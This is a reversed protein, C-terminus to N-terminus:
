KIADTEYIFKVDTKTNSAAGSYNSDERSLESLNRIREFLPKLDDKYTDAIKNIGQKKFDSMGNNLQISGESLRGVGDVLQTTGDQLKFLGNLLNASGSRLTQAGGYLQGVSSVLTGTGAKLQGSGDELKTLGDSLSKAGNSLQTIGNDLSEAGENLKKAGDNAASIGDSLNQTGVALAAAGDALQKSSSSLTDSGSYVKQAGEDLSATGSVLKDTGSALTQAGSDLQTLGGLLKAAGDTLGASEESGAFAASLSASGAVLGPNEATGDGKFAAQLQEMGGTFATIDESATSVGDKLGTSIQKQGEVTQQLTAIIVALQQYEASEPPYNAQMAQLGLLAKANYAITTDLSKTAEDIGETLEGVKEAGSALQDVGASVKSIGTALSEAGAGARTIGESLSVAGDKASGIGLALSDAGNDLEVASKALKSTGDSLAKVGGKLNEAGEALAASGTALSQAGNNVQKAGDDASNLGTSLAGTGDSFEKLGDQVKAFGTLLTESGTKATKIGGALAGTSSDLTAAGDALKASGDALAAVGNDLQQDGSVLADIGDTLTGTSNKLTDLGKCLETTGDLLKDSADTLQDLKDNLDDLKSVDGIDIDSFVNSSGATITTKLEFDVVDASIEFYEPISIDDNDTLGLSEKLSPVAYGVVIIRDGDSIIKGNEARVNTFKNGDLLVGTTMLFPTYLKTKQGDINVNHSSNNIYDYRITVRGSKGALEDPDISKGNLTYSIKIDIPLDKESYGKYYVDGGNASWTIDSGDASFGGGLKLEEINTLDSLDSITEAGSNNRLWDSVITKTKKGTADTMVYVTESKGQAEDSTERIDSNNISIKKDNNHDPETSSDTNKNAMAYIGTTSASIMVALMAAIMKGYKKM